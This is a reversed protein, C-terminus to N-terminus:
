ALGGLLTSLRAAATDLAHHALVYQRAKRGADTDTAVSDIASAFAKPDDIAALVSGPGIVARPGPWDEAVIPTGAAQAELYIMGYAENVGPWVLIDAAEYHARLASEDVEGVFHVKAGFSNFLSEVESKAPGDGIITLTWNTDLYPLAAALQRYSALKDGGRMMAVALLRLTPCASKAAPEPGPDLFPPFDAIIQCARVDRDLAFRDHATMALLLDASDIATEARRAFGDWAGGLRKRARSAEAIVYPISFRKALPPGLLDPAKYYCHYTFWIDPPRAAWETSIRAVETRANQSIEAQADACGKGDFARLSSAIEVEYGVKALSQKFLRAMRRDGSPVPHDVPKMPAYFAVRTM